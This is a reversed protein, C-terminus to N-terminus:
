SESDEDSTYPQDEVVQVRIENDIEISEEGVVKRNAYQRGHIMSATWRKHQALQIAGAMMRPNPKKSNADQVAQLILLEADQVMVHAAYEQAQKLFHQHKESHLFKFLKTVSVKYLQAIERYHKGQIILELIFELESDELQFVTVANNSM